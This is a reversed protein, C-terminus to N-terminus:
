PRRLSLQRCCPANAEASRPLLSACLPDVPQSGAGVRAIQLNPEALPARRVNIPHCGQLAPVHLCGTAPGGSVMGSSVDFETRRDVTVLSQFEGDAAQGLFEGNACGTWGMQQIPHIELSDPLFRALQPPVSEDLLLKM